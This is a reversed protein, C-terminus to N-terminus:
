PSWKGRGAIDALSVLFNKVKENFKGWRADKIGQKYGKIFDESYGHFDSLVNSDYYNNQGKRYGIAYQAQSSTSVEKIVEKILFKLDSKKM